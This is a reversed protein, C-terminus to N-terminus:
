VPDPLTIHIGRTFEELASIDDIRSLDLVPEESQLAKIGLDLHEIQYLAATPVELERRVPHPSISRCATFILTTFHWCNMSVGATVSLSLTSNDDPKEVIERLYGGEDVETLAMEAIREGPINGRILASRDFLVVAPPETSRLKSLASLPYLNDGNILLFNDSGAFGEAALLADATGRPEKQEVLSLKVSDLHDSMHEYRDHLENRHSSVVLCIDDAGADILNQIQYDLFPRGHLHIMGKLGIRAAHDTESSVGAAEASRQMRTGLGAALVIAKQTYGSGKEGTM